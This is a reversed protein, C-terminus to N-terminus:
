RKKKRGKRYREILAKRREAADRALEILEEETLHVNKVVDKLHEIWDEHTAFRDRNYWAWVLQEEISVGEGVDSEAEQSYVDHLAILIELLYEAREELDEIGELLGAEYRRDIEAALEEYKRILRKVRAWERPPIVERWDTIIGLKFM